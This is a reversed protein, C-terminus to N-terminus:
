LEQGVKDSFNGVIENPEKEMLHYCTILVARNKGLKSFIFVHRFCRVRVIEGRKYQFLLIALMKFARNIMKDSIKREAIRKEAHKTKLIEVM